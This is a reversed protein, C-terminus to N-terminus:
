AGVGSKVKTMLLHWPRGRNGSDPQWTTTLQAFMGKMMAVAAVITAIVLGRSIAIELLANARARAEGSMKAYEEAM